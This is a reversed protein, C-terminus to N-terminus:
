IYYPGPQFSSLFANLVGSPDDSYIDLVLQRLVADIPIAKQLLCSVRHNTLQRKIKRTLVVSFNPFLTGSRYQKITKSLKVGTIIHWM